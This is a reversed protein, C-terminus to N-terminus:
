MRFTWNLLRNSFRKSRLSKGKPIFYGKYVDDEMVAHSMGIPAPPQFRFVERFIAEIYPLSPRDDFHPLRSTGVVADLEKQAKEQIEPHRAMLYFFTGLLSNTKFLLIERM